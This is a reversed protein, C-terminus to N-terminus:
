FMPWSTHTAIFIQISGDGYLWLGVWGAMKVEVKFWLKIRANQLIFISTNFLFVAIFLVFRKDAFIMMGYDAKSRIVRGM